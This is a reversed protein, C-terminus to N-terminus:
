REFPVGLSGQKMILSFVSLSLSLVTNKPSIKTIELAKESPRPETGFAGFATKAQKKLMELVKFGM